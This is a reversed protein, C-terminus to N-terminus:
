ESQTPRASKVAQKLIFVADGIEELCEAHGWVNSWEPSRGTVLYYAQSLAQEAADREDILKLENREHAESDAAIKRAWDAATATM